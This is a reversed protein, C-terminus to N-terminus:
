AVEEAPRSILSFPSFFTPSTPLPFKHPIILRSNQGMAKYITSPNYELARDSISGLVSLRKAISEEVSTAGPARGPWVIEVGSCDAKVYLYLFGFGVGEKGLADLVSQSGNKRLSSSIIECASGKTGCDAKMKLGSSRFELDGLMPASTFFSLAGAVVILCCTLPGVRRPM